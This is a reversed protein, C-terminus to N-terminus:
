ALVLQYAQSRVDGCASSATKSDRVVVGLLEFEPSMDSKGTADLVSMQM